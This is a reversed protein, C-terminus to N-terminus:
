LGKKLWLEFCFKQISDPDLYEHLVEREVDLDGLHALEERRHALDLNVPDGLFGSHPDVVVLGGALGRAFAGDRVVVLLGLLQRQLGVVSLLQPPHREPVSPRSEILNPM